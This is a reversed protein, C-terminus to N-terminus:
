IDHVILKLFWKNEFTRQFCKILDTKKEEEKLDIEMLIRDEYFTEKFGWENCETESYIQSRFLDMLDSSGNRQILKIEEISQNLTKFWEEIGNEQLLKRREEIYEQGEIQLNERKTKLDIGIACILESLFDAADEQSNGIFRENHESM